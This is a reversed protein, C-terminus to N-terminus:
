VSVVASGLRDRRGALDIVPASYGSARSRALEAEAASRAIPLPWGSEEAIKEARRNLWATESESYPMEPHYAPIQQQRSDGRSALM